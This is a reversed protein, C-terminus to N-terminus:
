SQRALIEEIQDMIEEMAQMTARFPAPTTMDVGADQLIEVPPKSSGAKLLKDIYREVGGNEGTLIQEHFATAAIFSTAYTYVYYNFHFHPIFAWEVQYKEDITCVGEDHGHYRRLLELYLSNLTESTLPKGDEVVKHMALEFEAFMTQRFVTTRVSELFNGLIALREQDSGANALTHRFFLWEQTTSAVEAVFTAYDATPFPQAASSLASHMMHGAEHAFTSASDYDDQHNLLMYPHVEYAAGSVYAGTRKGEAPFVDIWGSECAKRMYSVYEEGMPEFAKLVVDVSREWPYEAEVAKVLSPYLDHYALDEVGLMRARLELYRHLSPLARNVEDILMHYVAPDVEAGSLSAELTDDYSRVKTTFLHGKVTSGLTTALSQEFAALQGYFADYTKIRDDRNGMARGRSYGNVDVKLETGDSLTITEWPMEANRLLSGITNGDGGMLSSLSIIEEGEADLTHPRQKELRELARRFKALGPEEELFAQIKESPISLIEPDIWSTKAGLESFMQRLEMRRGLPAPKRVDLDSALGSYVFLRAQQMGIESSLELAALLTQPSEGLKGQYEVLKDVKAPLEDKAKEWAELTPYLDTLDWETALEGAVVETAGGALMLTMGLLLVAALGVATAKPRTQLLIDNKKM